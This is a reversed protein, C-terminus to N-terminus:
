INASIRRMMDDIMRQDSYNSTVWRRCDERNLAPTNRNMTILKARFDTEDGWRFYMARDGMYDRGGMWESDSLLCPKGLYYGEMLTLGGTSAEYYHSVLFKCHAVAKQYDTYSLDHDTRRYPIGLDECTTEFMTDWPDPIHRLTCLAYGDDRVDDYDWWPCASLIVHWNKLGYWQETRRGTCKSPVWVERAHSLLEGYKRYDYEGPRPHTWVWAYVDWNFCFLPVDPWRKLADFTEDMITVGMSILVDPKGPIRDSGPHEVWVQHGQSRLYEWAPLTRDKAPISIRSCVLINM